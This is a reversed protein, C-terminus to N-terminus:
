LRCPQGAGCCGVGSAVAVMDMDGEAGCAGVAVWTTALLRRIPARTAQCGSRRCMAGSRPTRGTGEAGAPRAVLRGSRRSEGARACRRRESCNQQGGPPSSSRRLDASTTPVPISTAPTYRRGVQTRAPRPSAPITIRVPKGAVVVGDAVVDLTGNAVPDKETCDQTGVWVVDFGLVHETDGPLPGFGGPPTVSEVFGAISPSPVLRVNGTSTVAAEILATLTAVITGANVGVTHSGGTASTIRSAQGSSGGPAGCVGCDTAGVTPDGDFGPPDGTTTGVAVVVVSATQLEATASGEAIDAGEGTLAACVPDHGPYDGFGM